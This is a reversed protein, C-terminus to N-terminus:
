PAPPSPTKIRTPKILTRRGKIPIVNKNAKIQDCDFFLRLFQFIQQFVSSTEKPSSTIEWRGIIFHHVSPVTRYLIYIILVLLNGGVVAAGAAFNGEKTTYDWKPENDTM